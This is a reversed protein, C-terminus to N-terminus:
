RAKWEWDLIAYLLTDHWQGALLAEERFHAEQRMGAKQMVRASAINEAACDAVIRHLGLDEFGFRLLANAVETGIGQGWHDRRLHYGIEGERTESEAIDLGCGGVIQQTATLVVAFRYRTQPQQQAYSSTRQLFAAVEERSEAAGTVYRMVQADGRIALVAEMDSSEFPRLRLRATSLERM